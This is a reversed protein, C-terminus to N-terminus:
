IQVVPRGGPPARGALAAGLLGGGRPLVATMLPRRRPPAETATRPARPRSRAAARVLAADGPYHGGLLPLLILLAPALYALADGVGIALMGFTWLAATAALALPM